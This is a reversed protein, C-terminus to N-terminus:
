FASNSTDVPAGAPPPPNQPVPQGAQWQPPTYNPGSMRRKNLVILGMAFFTLLALWLPRDQRPVQQLYPLLYDAISDLIQSILQLLSTGVLAFTALASGGWSVIQDRLNVKKAPSNVRVHSVIFKAIPRDKAAM